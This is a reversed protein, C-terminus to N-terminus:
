GDLCQSAPDRAQVPQMTCEIDDQGAQRNSELNTTMQGRNSTLEYSDGGDLSRM